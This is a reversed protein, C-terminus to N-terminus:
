QNGAKDKRAFSVFCYDFLSDDMKAPEGNVSAVCDEASVLKAADAVTELGSAIKEQGGEKKIRVEKAM